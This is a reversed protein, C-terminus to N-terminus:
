VIEGILIKSKGLCMAIADNLKNENVYNQRLLKLLVLAKDYIGQNYYIKALYGVSEGGRGRPQYRLASEYSLEYNTREGCIISFILGDVWRQVNPYLSLAIVFHNFEFLPKTLALGAHSLAENRSVSFTETKLTANEPNRQHSQAHVM